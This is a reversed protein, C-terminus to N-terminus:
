PADPTEERTKEFTVASRTVADNRCTGQSAAGRCPAIAHYREQRALMVNERGISCGGSLNFYGSICDFITIRRILARGFNVAAVCQGRKYKKQLGIARMALSATVASNYRHHEDGEKM